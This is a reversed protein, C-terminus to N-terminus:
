LVIIDHRSVMVFPQVAAQLCSESSITDTLFGAQIALSHIDYDYLLCYLDSRLADHMVLALVVHRYIIIAVDVDGETDGDTGIKIVPEDDCWLVHHGHLAVEHCLDIELVPIRISVADDADCQDLLRRM